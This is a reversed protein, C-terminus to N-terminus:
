WRWSRRPTSPWAAASGSCPRSLHGIRYLAMVDDFARSDGLAVLAWGIQPKAGPGATKLRALLADKAGTAGASQRVGRAGDRGHSAAAGESSNLAGRVVARRESDKAWALQKLAEVKLEDSAETAAWERWKPLQENKPLM